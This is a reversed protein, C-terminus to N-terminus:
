SKVTNKYWDTNRCDGKPYNSPKPLNKVKEISKKVEQVANYAAYGLDYWFDGKEAGGDIAILEHEKLECVGFQNVKALTDMIDWGKM